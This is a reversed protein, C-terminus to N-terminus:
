KYIEKEVYIKSSSFNIRLGTTGAVSILSRLNRRLRLLKKIRTLQYEKIWIKIAKKFSKISFFCNDDTFRDVSAMLNSNFSAELLWDDFARFPVLVWDRVYSLLSIPIHDSNHHSWGKTIWHIDDSWLDNILVRDLVSKKKRPGFWTFKFDSGPVEILALDNIFKNFRITDREQHICGEMDAETRVSNFDGM